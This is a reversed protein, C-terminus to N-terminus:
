SDLRGAPDSVGKEDYLGSLTPRPSEKRAKDLSNFVTVGFPKSKFLIVRNM